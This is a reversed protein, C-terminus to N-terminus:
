HHFWSKFGPLRVRLTRLQLVKCCSLTLNMFNHWSVPANLLSVTSPFAPISLGKNTNSDFRHCTQYQYLMNMKQSYWQEAFIIYGMYMQTKLNHMEGNFIGLHIWCQLKWFTFSSLHSRNEQKPHDNKSRKM